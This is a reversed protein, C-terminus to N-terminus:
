YVGHGVGASLREDEPLQSEDRFFKRLNEDIIGPFQDIQLDNELRTRWETQNNCM